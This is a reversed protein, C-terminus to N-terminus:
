TFYIDQLFKIKRLKKTLFFVTAGVIAGSIVGSLALYPSYSLYAFSKMVFCFVANQCVANAVSGTVSIAIISLRSTYKILLVQIILAILGSPLSYMLASINGSYLSGLTVKVILVAFGYKNGLLVVCLLIFVNSLGMRAGPFFLPPFLNEIMFTILALASLLASLTLKKTNKKM